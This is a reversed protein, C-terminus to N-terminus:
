MVVERSRSWGLCSAPQFCSPGGWVKYYRDRYGPMDMGIPDEGWPDGGMLRQQVRESVRKSLEACLEGESLVSRWSPLPCLGARSLWCPQKM